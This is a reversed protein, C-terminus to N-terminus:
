GFLMYNDMKFGGGVGPTWESLSSPTTKRLSLNRRTNYSHQQGDGGSFVTFGDNNIESSVDVNPYLNNVKVFNGFEGTSNDIIPEEKWYRYAMTVQISMFQDREGWDLNGPAVMLPYADVLKCSYRTNGHRDFQELIVTSVYDDFYEFENTQDNNCISNQWGQFMRKTGMDERCYISIVVDDYVNQYPQKRIPGHTTYEQTSFSRGPLQAQSCLFALTRSEKESVVPGTFLARFYAGSAPQQGEFNAKFEEIDFFGQQM